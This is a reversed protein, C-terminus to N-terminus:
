SKDPLVKKVDQSRGRPAILVGDPTAVIVLDSVGVASVPVGESRILNNMGDLLTVAGSVVNGKL